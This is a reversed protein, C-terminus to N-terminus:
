RGRRYAPPSPAICNRSCRWTCDTPGSRRSLGAWWSGSASSASPGVSRGLVLVCTVNAGARRLAVVASLARAGTVWCDEVVLVRRGAVCSEDAAAFARRNPELHGAPASPVLRVLDLASLAGIDAMLAELPHRGIAKAQPRSTPVVCYADFGGTEERLCDGHIALYREAGTALVSAFHQRAAVV